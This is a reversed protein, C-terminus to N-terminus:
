SADSAVDTTMSICVTKGGVYNYFDVRLRPMDVKIREVLRPLDSREFDDYILFTVKGSQLHVRILDVSGPDGFLQLACGM